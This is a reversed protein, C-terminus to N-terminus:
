FLLFETTRSNLLRLDFHQKKKQLESYLDEKDRVRQQGHGVYNRQPQGRQRNRVTVWLTGRHSGGKGTESQPGCHEETVTGEAESSVTVWLTGRLSHWAQPIVM